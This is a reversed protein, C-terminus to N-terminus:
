GKDEPIPLPETQLEQDLRIPLVKPLVRIRAPLRMHVDSDVRMTYNRVRSTIVIEKAQKYVVDSLLRTHKGMFILPVAALFSLKSRMPVICIDLLGDDIVAHPTVSVNASFRDCVAVTISFIAVKMPEGDITLRLRRARYNWLARAVAVIGDFVRRWLTPAETFQKWAEVDIGLGVSETFLRDNVWGLDVHHVTGEHALRLAKEHDLPIKLFSAFNNFTGAPVIGFTFDPPLKKDAAFPSGPSMMGHLVQRVTDDGGVAVISRRGETAARAATDYADQDDRTLYLEDGYEDALKRFLEVDNAGRSAGSAPNMIIIPRHPDEVHNGEGAPIRLRREKSFDATTHQNVAGGATYSDNQAGPFNLM